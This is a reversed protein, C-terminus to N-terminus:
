FTKERFQIWFYDHLDVHRRLTERLRPLTPQPETKMRWDEKRKREKKSDKKSDKKRDRKREKEKKREKRKKGGKKRKISTYINM